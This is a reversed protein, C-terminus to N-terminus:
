GTSVAALVLEQGAVLVLEKRSIGWLKFYGVAVFIGIGFIRMALFAGVTHGMRM